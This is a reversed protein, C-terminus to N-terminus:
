VKFKFGAQDAKGRSNFRSELDRVERKIAGLIQKVHADTYEYNSTSSLNGILQIRKIVENVRKEALEEFKEMRKSKNEM